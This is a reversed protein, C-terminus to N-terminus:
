ALVKLAGLLALLTDRDMAKQKEIFCARHKEFPRWISAPPTAGSMVFIRTGTLSGSQALDDLLEDGDMEPMRVDVLLVEPPHETLHEIALDCNLFPELQWDTDRLARELAALVLEDDDVAAIVHTRTANVLPPSVM